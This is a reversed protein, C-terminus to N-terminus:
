RGQSGTVTFIFTWHDHDLLSRNLPVIPVENKVVQPSFGPSASHPQTKGQNPAARCGKRLLDLPRGPSQTLASLCHKYRDISGPSSSPLGRIHRTPVPNMSGERSGARGETETETNRRRETEREGGASGQTLVNCYCHNVCDRPFSTAQNGSPRSQTTQAQYAAAEGPPWGTSSGHTVQTSIWPCSPCHTISGHCVGCGPM